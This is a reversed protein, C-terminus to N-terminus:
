RGLQRCRSGDHNWELRAAGDARQLGRVPPPENGFTIKGGRVRNVTRKTLQVPKFALFIRANVLNFGDTVASFDDTKNVLESM